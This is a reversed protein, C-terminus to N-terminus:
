NDKKDFIVKKKKSYHCVGSPLRSFRSACIGPMQLAFTGKEEWM